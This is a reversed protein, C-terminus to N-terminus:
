VKGELPDPGFRNTGVTGRLFGWIIGPVILLAWWGTRDVDHLRRASVALTPLLTALIALWIMIPVGTNNFLGFVTLDLLVAVIYLLLIFLTWFWYESRAARGNFGVYNRFGYSIAEKFGM